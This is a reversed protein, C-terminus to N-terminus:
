AIGRDSALVSSVRDIMEGTRADWSNREAVELRRAIREPSDTEYAQELAALFAERDRAVWILEEHSAVDVGELAVVPKGMATYEHLKNPNVYRNFESGQRYPIMCVDFCKCIAPIRDREVWGLIRVNPLAELERFTESRVAAGQDLKGALVISWGPRSCAVFRILDLDTHQNLTGLYGVRPRPLHAFQPDPAVSDDQVRSYFRFDAGNPVHYIRDHLGAKIEKIRESTCLVLDVKSFLERECHEVLRAWPDRQGAIATHQDYCEYVSLREGLMGHYGVWLPFHFWTVIPRLDMGLRRIMRKVQRALLRRNLLALRSSRQAFRDDLAVFARGLHLNESLRALPDGGALLRVMSQRWKTLGRSPNGKGTGRGRLPGTVPCMMRDICLLQGGHPRIHRAFAYIMDPRHFTEWDSSLYFVYNLAAGTQSM